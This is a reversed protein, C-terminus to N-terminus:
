VAHVSFNEIDYFVSIFGLSSSLAREEFQLLIWVAMLCECQPRNGFHSPGFPIEKFALYNLVGGLLNSVHSMIGLFRFSDFQDVPKGPKLVPLLRPDRIEPPICFCAIVLHFFRLLFPHVAPWGALLLEIPLLDDKTARNRRARSVVQHLLLPNFIALLNDVDAISSDDWSAALAARYEDERQAPSIPSGFLKKCAQATWAHRLDAPDTIYDHEHVDTNPRRMPMSSVPLASSKGMKHKVLQYLLHTREGADPIQEIAKIRQSYFERRERRIRKQNSRKLAYYANCLAAVRGGDQPSRLALKWQHWTARAANM